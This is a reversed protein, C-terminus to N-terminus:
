YLWRSCEAQGFHRDLEPRVDEHGRYIFGLPHEIRTGRLVFTPEYVSSQIGILKVNEPSWGNMDTGYRAVRWMGGGSMGAPHPPKVFQGSDDQTTRQGYDLLIGVGQDADTWPIDGREGCYLCTAYVCLNSGLVGPAIEKQNLKGPFGGVSYWDRPDQKSWPDLESLGLFRFNNGATIREATARSIEIVCSDFPDDALRNPPDKTPSRWMTVKGIPFLQNGAVRDTINLPIPGPWNDFVHAASLIFHKDRIVLLVGTACLWAHGSPCAYVPMTTQLIPARAAISSRWMFARTVGDVSECSFSM